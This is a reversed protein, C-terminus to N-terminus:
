LAAADLGAGAERERTLEEDVPLEFSQGGYRLEYRVRVRQPTAALAASASEILAAREDALRPRSLSVGALM